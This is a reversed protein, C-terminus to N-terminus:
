SREDAAPQTQLTSKETLFFISLYILIGTPLQGLVQNGYSAVLIGVAGSFLAILKRKHDINNEMRVRKLAKIMIFVLIGLYFVLGVYGYEAAIRVYWSDLALNALFTDPSFRQGWYGGSGVGGGFPHDDLYKALRKQNELRVQLSPDNPDLSSRLRQIQYNGQGVYTFKLLGLLIAITVVGLSVIKFNRSLLLFVMAGVVPVAFAGRTGSLLMAYFGILAVAGYIFKKRRETTLIAMITAVIATHAQSAGFQGADSYFSFVRLRGFLLHTSLNGPINLWAKEAVDLGFFHQKMGWVAGLVSFAFWLHIFWNIDKRGDLALYCVLLTFFLHLTVGRMAYFWAVLSQAEPNFIQLVNWMLWVASVVFVPNRLKQWDMQRFERFFLFLFISLLLADMSLGLPYPLYRTLGVSLFNAALLVYFALRINLRVAFYFIGLAALGIMIVPVVMGFKYILAAVLSAALLFGFVSFAGNKM